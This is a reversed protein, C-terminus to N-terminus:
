GGSLLLNGAAASAPWKAVIAAILIIALIM